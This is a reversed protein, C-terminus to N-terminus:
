ARATEPLAILQELDAVTLEDLRRVARHAQPFTEDPHTTRVGVVRMGARLGAEIGAHADEFVVCHAPAREIRRAAQLFVDPDPKGHTVDEASVISSFAGALGTTALVTTINLRHTSSGIVCPVGAARLRELFPRVGPLPEIGHARVLERFLEEKRLSLRTIEGVVQSWGLLEPIIRENKMGFGRHFHDPPLVRGEEAALLEWSRLHQASSDVVVGDWDFVAGLTASM